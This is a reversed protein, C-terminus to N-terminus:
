GLNSGCCSSSDGLVSSHLVDQACAFCLARAYCMCMGMWLRKYVRRHSERCMDSARTRSQTAAARRGAAARAALRVAAAGAAVGGDYTM